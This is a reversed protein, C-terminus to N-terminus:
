PLFGLPDVARGEVWVEFHLHPGFSYGTNGVYGIVQGAGVYQGREVVYDDLHAYLTAYGQGHEVLVMNGYGGRWGAFATRGARAARVPAGAPAAIDIGDHHRGWRYGFPSTVEGAAPWAFRAGWGRSVAVSRPRGGPVFLKEGVIVLDDAKGNATRIAAADVGYMRAMAWLTDGDAVEHLVGKRPLVVLEDGPRIHEDLDPNAGLLTDVDIDYRAAIVGLCEGAAVTHVRIGPGADAAPAPAATAAAPATEQVPAPATVASRPPAADRAALVALHGFSLVAAMLVLVMFVHMLMVEGHVVRVIM